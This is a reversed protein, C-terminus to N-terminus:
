RENKFYWKKQFSDFGIDFPLPPQVGDKGSPTALEDVINRYEYTSVFEGQGYGKCVTAIMLLNRFPQANFLRFPFSRCGLLRNEYDICANPELFKKAPCGGVVNRCCSGCRICSYRTTGPIVFASMSVAQQDAPPLVLGMQQIRLFKDSGEDNLLELLHWLERNKLAVGYRSIHIHILKGDVKFRM